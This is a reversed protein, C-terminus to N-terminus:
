ATFEVTIGNVHRASYILIYAGKLKAFEEVLARMLEPSSRTLECHRRRKIGIVAMLATDMLDTM